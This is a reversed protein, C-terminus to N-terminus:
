QIETDKEKNWVRFVFNLGGGGGKRAECGSM